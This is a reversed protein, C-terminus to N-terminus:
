PVASYQELRVAACLVVRASIHRPLASRRSYIGQADVRFLLGSWHNGLVMLEMLVAPVAWAAKLVPRVRRATRRLSQTYLFLTYPLLVQMLYLLLLSLETAGPASPPRGM